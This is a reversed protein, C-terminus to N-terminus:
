LEGGDEGTDTDIDGDVGDSGSAKAKGKGENHAAERKKCAIYNWNNSLYRKLHEKVPWNAM